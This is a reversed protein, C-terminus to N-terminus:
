KASCALLSGAYTGVDLGLKIMQASFVVGTVGAATLRELLTTQTFGKAFAEGAGTYGLETHEPGWSVADAALTATLTTFNVPTPNSLAVSGVNAARNPGTFM